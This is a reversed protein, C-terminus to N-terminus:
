YAFERFPRNSPVVGISTELIVDVETIIVPLPLVLTDDIVVFEAFLKTTDVTEPAPNVKLLPSPAVLIEEVPAPASVTSPLIVDVETTIVPLPLVSSCYIEVFEAFLITTDV